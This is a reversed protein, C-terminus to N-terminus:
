SNRLLVFSTTKKRLCLKHTVFGTHVLNIESSYKVVGHTEHTVDLRNMMSTVQLISSHSLAISSSPAVRPSQSADTSITTQLPRRTDDHVRSTGAAGAASDCCLWDQAAGDGQRVYTYVYLYPSVLLFIEAYVRRCVPSLLVHKNTTCDTSIQTGNNEADNMTMMAHDNDDDSPIDSYFLASNLCSVLVADLCARV